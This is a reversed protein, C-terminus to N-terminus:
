AARGRQAISPKASLRANREGLYKEARNMLGNITKYRHNRTVEAHFDRWVREIPNEDPCYPPLFHLQVKGGLEAIAKQTIKSKHIIYNDVVLHIVRHKRFQSALKWLLEIFLASAKRKGTVWVMEKTGTHIAGAIYRKRNKGPTEVLKQQGTLMWDDGIKPNLHVDVEDSWFAIEDDPLQEIMRRIEAMRRRRKPAPWPCGVFPKPRGLRARIRALARSMTSVAVHVRTKRTMVKVLLEQTWTPRREGFDLPSKGVVTRLVKLYKESVKPRGNGSRRDLLGQPGDERYRALIRQVTTTHYRLADAVYTTPWGEAWLLVVMIRRRQGVERCARAWDDLIQLYGDDLALEDRRRSVEETGM